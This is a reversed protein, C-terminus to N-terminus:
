IATCLLVDGLMLVTEVASRSVGGGLSASIDDVYGRAMLVRVHEQAISRLSAQSM